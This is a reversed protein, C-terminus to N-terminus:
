ERPVAVYLTGGRRRVTLLVSRKGDKVAKRMEGASEVPKRNVEVIVDGERLGLWPSVRSSDIQTIVLGKLDDPLGSRRLLAPTAPTVIVGALGSDTGGEEDAAPEDPDGSAAAKEEVKRLRVSYEKTKQDRWVELRV